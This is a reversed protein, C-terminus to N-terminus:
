RVEGRHHKALRAPGEPGCPCAAGCVAGCAAHPSAPVGLLSAARAHPVSSLHGASCLCRSLSDTLATSAAASLPGAFKTGLGHRWECTHGHGRMKCQQWPLRAKAAVCSARQQSTGLRAPHSCAPPVFNRRRQSWHKCVKCNIACGSQCDRNSVLFSPHIFRVCMVQCCAGHMCAHMRIGVSAHMCVTRHQSALGALGQLREVGAEMGHCTMGVGARM